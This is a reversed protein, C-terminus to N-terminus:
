QNLFSDLQELLSKLARKMHTKVTNVSIGLIEAIEHYKLHNYRKMRYVHRCQTPLKEIAQHVKQQLEKEALNEEPSNSDDTPIVETKDLSVTRQERKLYNLSQNYVMKYLYSKLNTEINQKTRLAWLKTFVNQVIDEAIQGDKVFKGAFQYLPEYYTKFIISFSSKDGSRTKNWNALDEQETDVKSMM